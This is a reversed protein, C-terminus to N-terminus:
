EDALALTDLTISCGREALLAAAKAKRMTLQQGQEVLAELEAQRLADVTGETNARMLVRLRAQTDGAMQERAITWLADNSLLTLAELERQEALSLEPLPDTFADKLQQLLVAEVTQETVAAIHSARDYIEAPVPLTVPHDNMSDGPNM